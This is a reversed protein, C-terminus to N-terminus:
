EIVKCMVSNMHIIFFEGVPQTKNVQYFIMDGIEVDEVKNGIKLVTDRNFDGSGSINNFYKGSGLLVLHKDDYNIKGDEILSKPNEYKENLNFSGSFENFSYFGVLSGTNVSVGTMYQFLVDREM